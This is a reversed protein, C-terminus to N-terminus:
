EEEQRGHQREGARPEEGRQGERERQEQERRRQQQEREKQQQNGTKRQENPGSMIYDETITAPRAM